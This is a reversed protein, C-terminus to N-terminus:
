LDKDWEEKITIGLDEIEMDEPDATETERPPFVKPSTIVSKEVHALAKRIYRAATRRNRETAYIPIRRAKARLTSYYEQAQEVNGLAKAYELSFIDRPDYFVPPLLGIQKRVENGLFTFREMLARLRVTRPAVYDLSITDQVFEGTALKVEIDVHAPLHHNQILFPPEDEVALAPGGQGSCDVTFVYETAHEEIQKRIAPIYQHPVVISTHFGGEFGVEAHTQQLEAVLAEPDKKARVAQTSESDSDSDSYQDYTGWEQRLPNHDAARGIPVRFTQSGQQGLNGHELLAARASAPPKPVPYSTGGQPGDGSKADRITVTVEIIPNVLAGGCTNQPPVSDALILEFQTLLDLIRGAEKTNPDRDQIVKVQRLVTKRVADVNIALINEGKDNTHLVVFNAPNSDDKTPPQQGAGRLGLEVPRSTLSASPGVEPVAPLTAVSYALAPLADALRPPRGKHPRLNRKDNVPFGLEALKLVLRRQQVGSPNTLTTFALHTTSRTSM